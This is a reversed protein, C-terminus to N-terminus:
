AIDKLINLDAFDFAPDTEVTEETWGEKGDEPQSPLFSPNLEKPSPVPDGFTRALEPQVNAQVNSPVNARVDRMREAAKARDAKVKAATPNYDLYDRIRYHKGEKVWLGATQLQSLVRRTSGSITLCVRVDKDSVLGDTLKRACLCMGTVHLRFAKDTLPEIREHEVFGDDIRLWTM